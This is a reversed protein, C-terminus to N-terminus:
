KLNEKFFNVLVEYEEPHWRKLEDRKQGFSPSYLDFVECVVCSGQKMAFTGQVEGHCLTGAVIFCSHGNDPFAPCIGLEEAKKGGKERECGKIEWCNPLM